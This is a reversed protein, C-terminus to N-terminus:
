FVESAVSLLFKGGSQTSLRPSAPKQEPNTMAFSLERELQNVYDLRKDCHMCMPNNKDRNKLSCQRCPNSKM